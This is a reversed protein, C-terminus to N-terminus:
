AARALVEGTLGTHVEGARFEDSRLIGTLAPINNKVGDIAFAELAECLRDIAQARTPAHAIVKALLPDYHPTV